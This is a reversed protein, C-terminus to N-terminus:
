GNRRAEAADLDRRVRRARRLTRAILVALLAGTAGYAALVEVAYRGLDM